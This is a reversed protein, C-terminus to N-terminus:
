VWFAIRKSQKGYLYTVMFFTIFFMITALVYVFTPPSVGIIPDRILSIFYSFPNLWVIKQNLGLQNPKYIVPSIFFLLPMLASIIQEFDRFRAGLMGFLIAILYLNMIVLILGPILLLQEFGIKQPYILLVAVVVIFNHGFNILQRTILQMPFIAYPIKINRIFHANRSFITSGELISNSIFQWVVLGITLSPVLKEADEKLLTSWLFGLGAVSIATSLVMWFPGLISRRYRAKTDGWAFHFAIAYAQLGLLIGFFGNKFTSYQIKLLAM